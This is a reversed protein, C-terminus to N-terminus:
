RQPTRASGADDGGPASLGVGLLGSVLRGVLGPADADRGGAQRARHVWADVLGLARPADLDDALAARV